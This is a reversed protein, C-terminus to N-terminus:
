VLPEMVASEIAERAMEVTLGPVGAGALVGDFEASARACQDAKTRATLELMQCWQEQDEVGHDDSEDGLMSELMLGANDASRIAREKSREAVLLRMYAMTMEDTIELDAVQTGHGPWWHRGRDSFM